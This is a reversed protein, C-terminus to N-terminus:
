ELKNGQLSKTMYDDMMVDTPCYVNTATRAKKGSSTKGNTNLLITSRNDQKVVLEADTSSKTDM